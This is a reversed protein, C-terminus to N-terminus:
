NLQERHSVSIRLQKIIFDRREFFILVDAINAVIQKGDTSLLIKRGAVVDFIHKMIATKGKRELPKKTDAYVLYNMDHVIKNLAYKKNKAYIFRKALEDGTSKFNAM